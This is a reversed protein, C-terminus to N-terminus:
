RTIRFVSIPRRANRSSATAIGQRAFAIAEPDIDLGWVRRAGAQRLFSTRVGSGCALDLVDKGAVYQGAFV